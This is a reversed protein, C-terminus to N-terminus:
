RIQKVLLFPIRLVTLFRGLPPPLNELFLPGGGWFFFLDVKQAVGRQTPKFPCSFSCWWNLPNLGGFFNSSLLSGVLDGLVAALLSSRKNARDAVTQLSNVDLAPQINNSRHSGLIHSYDM